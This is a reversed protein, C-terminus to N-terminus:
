KLVEGEVLLVDYVYGYGFDKNLILKGKMKITDGVEIIKQTTLTLSSKEETATGDEIHVWNRDLIGNNVKWVVGYVSLIKGEFDKQKLYIDEISIVDDPLEIQPLPPREKQVTEQPNEQHSRVPAVDPEKTLSVGELFLIREFTRNLQKSEFNKMPMGGSFYVSQGVELKTLPIALWFEKEDKVGKAYTYGGADMFESVVFPSPEDTHELKYEPLKSNKSTDNCAIFVLMVALFFLQKM